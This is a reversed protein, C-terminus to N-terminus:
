SGLFAAMVIQNAATVIFIHHTYLKQRLPHSEEGIAGFGLTEPLASVSLGSKSVQLSVNFSVNQCTSSKPRQRHRHRVGCYPTDEDGEPESRHSEEIAWLQLSRPRIGSERPWEPACSLRMSPRMLLTSQGTAPQTVSSAHPSSTPRSTRAVM